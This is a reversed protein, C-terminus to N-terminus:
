SLIACSKKRHLTTQLKLSLLAYPKSRHLIAELINLCCQFPNKRTCQQRSGWSCCQMPNKRHLITGPTNLCCQVLNTETCLHRSGRGCCQILNQGGYTNHCFKKKFLITYLRKSLVACPKLRLQDRKACVPDLLM